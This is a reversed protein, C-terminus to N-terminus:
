IRPRNANRMDQAALARGGQAGEIAAQRAMGNFQEILEPTTIGYRADLVLTQHVVAPGQRATASAQGLPIVTGGKSGMRLLEMGGRQENVRVTQGPGVYGGSARGFISKFIGGISGATSGDAKGFLADAIPGILKRQIAIRILEGVIDGLAGKLGLASKTTDIISDELRNMADVKLDSLRDNVEDLEDPLADRYRAYSSQNDRRLNKERAAYIGPLADVRDQAAKREAATAGSDIALIAALRAREEREALKLLALEMERRATTTDALAAQEVLLDRQNALASQEVDATERAIRQRERQDIILTDLRAREDNLRQLELRRTEGEAGDGLQGQKQQVRLEENRNLREDEVRAKEIAAREEASNALDAKASAIDNNARRELSGYRAEDALRDREAAAAAREQRKAAAAARKGAAAGARSDRDGQAGASANRFDAADRNSAEQAAQPSLGDRRYKKYQNLEFKQAELSDVSARVGRERAVALDRTVRALEGEVDRGDRDSGAVYATLPIKVAQGQASLAITRRANAIRETSQADRLDRNIDQQSRAGVERGSTVLERRLESQRTQANKADREAEIQDQALSVLQERRRAKALDYLKRAAEGTADAFRLMQGASNQAQAGALAVAGAASRAYKELLALNGTLREGRKAFEESDFAAQKASSAYSIIAATLGAIVLFPLAAALTTLAGSFIATTAAGIRKAATNAAVATTEAATAAAARGQAAALAGETAAVQTNVAGLARRTNLVARQDQREREATPSTVSRGLGFNLGSNFAQQKAALQSEVRQRELLTLTQQIAAQDARRAALTAELAAVEAAATETAQVAAAAALRTRSVYSANGKIIEAAVAQEVGLARGAAATVLGFAAAGGKVGVYGAAIGALAPVITDLNNALAAIGASVRATASLSEDTKGIYQGLANNLITFSAGITFNAKAAQKELDASGKLFAQFFEQSSVKGDIVEMRLKSVSGGFREIGNAVAQLIPRAGENISNFEEARVIQGGLAQTLQQIAGATSEASGGQVKLAAGVGATFRLLDSQSAGLEKAGQSLRGYLGGLSELQVGYRQAIGFLDNQVKGLNQGELGAVKLQNTFRTYGDAVQAIERAGFAAILGSASALLSSRMTGLSNSIQTTSRRVQQELDIIRREQQGLSRDVLTTTARVERQYQLFEARIQVVLPDVAPM